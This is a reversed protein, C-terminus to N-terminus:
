CAVALTKTSEYARHCSIDYESYTLNEAIVELEARRFKSIKCVWICMENGLPKVGNLEYYRQILYYEIYYLEERTVGELESYVIKFQRGSIARLTRTYGYLHASIRRVLNNSSGVYLIEGTYLSQKPKFMYIYSGKHNERYVRQYESYCTDCESRNHKNLFEGGCKKCVKIKKNLNIIKNM